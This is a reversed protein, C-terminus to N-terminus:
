RPKEWKELEAIKGYTSGRAIEERVRTEREYVEMGRNAWEVAQARPARVVGDDDGLIWDGPEVVEGAVTIPV